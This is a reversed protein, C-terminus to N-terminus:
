FCQGQIKGAINPGGTFPQDNELCQLNNGINNNEVVKFRQSGTNKQFQLNGGVLNRSVGMARADPVINGQIELNGKILTNGNNHCEALIIPNRGNGLGIVMGGTRNQIQINGDRLINNCVFTDIVNPDPNPGGNQIQINGWVTNGMIQIVGATEAQIDGQVTSDFVHLVAYADARINGTVLSGSVTCVAGAPAEVNDYTGPPLTGVCIANSGFATTMSFAAFVLIRHM